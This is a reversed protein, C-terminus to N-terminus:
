GSNALKKKNAYFAEYISALETQENFKTLITELQNIIWKWMTKKILNLQKCINYKRNKCLMHFTSTIFQLFLLVTCFVICATADFLVFFQWAGGNLVYVDTCSKLVIQWMKNRDISKSIKYLCNNMTCWVVLNLSHMHKTKRNTWWNTTLQDDTSFLSYSKFFLLWTLYFWILAM